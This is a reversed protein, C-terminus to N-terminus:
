PKPPAIALKLVRPKATTVYLNNEGDFTLDRAVGPVAITGAPSGDPMFVAVGGPFGTVYIRGQGDIALKSFAWAAEVSFKDRFKGEPSFIYVTKADGDLLYIAGLGDAALASPRGDSDANKLADTIRSLEKGSTDLHVVDGSAWPIGLLTGDGLITLGDFGEGAAITRVLKGTAGEFISVSQNQSVFVLGQRDAALALIPRDDQLKWSREFKGEGSFRQVRGTSYDAVYIAGDPGVAISRSDNLFGDGTGEAGFELLKTALAPDGQQQGPIQQLAVAVQTQAESVATAADDPIGAVTPITVATQALSTPDFEVIPTLHPPILSTTPRADTIATAAPIPGDPYLQAFSNSLVVVAGALVACLVVVLGVVMTPVLWNPRTIQPPAPPPPIQGPVFPPPAGQRASALTAAQQAVTTMGSTSAGASGTRVAAALEARAAAASAPRDSANLAMCRAILRAVAAPVQPNLADLPTLPDPQGQLVASARDLANAPAHNSLLAYLTAGLSYLDSRPDTGSAQIQELPAYQPTYGYLSAGGALTAGASAAGGKALGFDLLVIEGRPTLKLNQPKIDRHVIPPSQTHLYDLGDLLDDAWALVEGFSFPATRQAMLAGFDTGPIFQMVLFHSDGHAFYDSVVPLAAHRLSSLLRAERAFADDLQEGRVLTQKLAVTNGLRTDIAEYVAGMGGRGIQRVVRYRDHILTEPELSGTPTTM